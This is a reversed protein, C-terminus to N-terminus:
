LDVGLVAAAEGYNLFGDPPVEVKPVPRYKRLDDALFLYGTIGRFRQTYGVPM